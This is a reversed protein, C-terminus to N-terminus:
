MQVYNAPFCGVVGRLEGDWWDDLSDTKKVVKIRDGERFVLDGENQGEFRRAQQAFYENGGNAPSSPTGYRSPPTAGGSPQQDAWPNPTRPYYAAAPKQDFTASYPPPTNTLAANNTYGNSSPVNNTVSNSSPIRPKTSISISPSTSNAFPTMSNTSPIRTAGPRPPMVPPAEEEEEEEVNNADFNNTNQRSGTTPRASVAPSEQNSTKRNMVRNRIGYGTVTSRDKEPLTMSLNVAKGNAVM